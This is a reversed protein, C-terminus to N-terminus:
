HNLWSRHLQQTPKIKQILRCTLHTEMRTGVILTETTSKVKLVLRGVVTSSTLLIMCSAARPDNFSTNSYHHDM